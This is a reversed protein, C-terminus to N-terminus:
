FSAAVTPLVVRSNPACARAALSARSADQRSLHNLYVIVLPLVCVTRLYLLNSYAIEFGFYMLFVTVAISKSILSRRVFSWFGIYTALLLPLSGRILLEIPGSDGYWLSESYGIGVGRFPHDNIFKLDDRLVGDGIYRGQFGSAPDFWVQRVSTVAEEWQNPTVLVAAISLGIAAASLLMGIRPGITNYLLMGLGVAFLCYASVSKLLLLLVLYAIAALLSWNSLRTTFTKLHLYFCVFFFFAAISHSAFMLVPKGAALMNFVLQDYFASYSSIFFAKVPAYGAVILVSLGVNLVNAGIWAFRLPWGYTVSSLDTCMLALLATYPLLAGPTLTWLPTFVTFLLLSSMAVVACVFGAASLGYRIGMTALVVIALFGPAAWFWKSQVMDISTPCYLGVLFLLALLCSAFNRV